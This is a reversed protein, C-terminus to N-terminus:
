KMYEIVYKGVKFYKKYGYRQSFKLKIDWSLGVGFLRFWGMDKNRYLYFIRVGFLTIQDIRGLGSIM